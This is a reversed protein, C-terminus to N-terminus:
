DKLRIKWPKYKQPILIRHEPKSNEPKFFLIGLQFLDVSSRVLPDNKLEEWAKEMETSWHIDDLIAITTPKFHPKLKQFYTKTAKYNHHGDLFVLDFDQDPSIDELFSHFTNNISDIELNLQSFNKNAIKFVESDGEVTTIKSGPSGKALYASSIGLSTGCELIEEPQFFSSIRYLWQCVLPHSISSKAINAITTITRLQKSGAGFDTRHITSRDAKLKNRLTEIDPFRKVPKEMVAEAFKYLFPSHVQYITDASRYYKFFAKNM